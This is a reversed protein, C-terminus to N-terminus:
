QLVPVRLGLYGSQNLIALLHRLASSPRSLAVEPQLQARLNGVRVSRFRFVPGEERQRARRSQANFQDLHIWGDSGVAEKVFDVNSVYTIRKADEEIM